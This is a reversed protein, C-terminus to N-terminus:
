TKVDPMVLEGVTKKRKLTATAKCKWTHKLIKKKIDVFIAAPINIPILNFRYILEPPVSMKVVSCRSIQKQLKM